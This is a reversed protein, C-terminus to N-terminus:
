SLESKIEKGNVPKVQVEPFIWKTALESNKSAKLLADFENRIKLERFM